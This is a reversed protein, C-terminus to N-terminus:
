RKFYADQERKTAKRASIIRIRDDRETYTVVLLRGDALGTRNSRIETYEEREDLEDLAGQDEFVLRAKDFSVRHKNENALAKGDDWEFLDDQM